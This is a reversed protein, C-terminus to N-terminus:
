KELTEEAAILANLEQLISKIQKKAVEAKQTTLAEGREPDMQEILELNYDNGSKQLAAGPYKSIISRLDSLFKAGTSSGDVVFSIYGGTNGVYGEIPLGRLESESVHPHQKKYEEASKFHGGCSATTYLFPLQENMNRIISFINADVREEEGHSDMQKPARIWSLVDRKNKAFEEMRENRAKTDRSQVARFEQSKM